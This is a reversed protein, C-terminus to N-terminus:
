VDPVENSNHTYLARCAQSYYQVAKLILPADDLSLPTEGDNGSALILLRHCTTQKREMAEEQGKRWAGRRDRAVDLAAQDEVWTVDLVKAAEIWADVQVRTLPGLSGHWLRRVYHIRRDGVGRRRVKCVISLSDCTAPGTYVRLLALNKGEWFLSTFAYPRPSLEESYRALMLRLDRGSQTDVAFVRNTAFSPNAKDTM